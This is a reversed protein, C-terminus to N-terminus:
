WYNVLWYCEVVRYETPPDIYGNPGANMFTGSINVTRQVGEITVVVPGHFGQAMDTAPLFRARVQTHLRDAAGETQAWALTQVRATEGESWPAWAGPGGRAQYTLYPLTPREPLTTGVRTGAGTQNLLIVRIAAKFAELDAM